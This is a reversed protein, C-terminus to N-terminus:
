KSLDEAIDDQMLGEIRSDRIVDWVEARVDSTSAKSDYLSNFVSRHIANGLARGDLLHLFKDM